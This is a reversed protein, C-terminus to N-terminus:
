LYVNKICNSEPPLRAEKATLAIVAAPNNKRLKRILKNNKSDAAGTVTCSNIIYIDAVSSFAVLKFGSRELSERYYEAEYGNVKCGLSCISFTKM